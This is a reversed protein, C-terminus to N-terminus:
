LDVAIKPQTPSQKPNLLVNFSYPRPTLKALRHPMAIPMSRRGACDANECQRAASNADDPNTLIPRVAAV